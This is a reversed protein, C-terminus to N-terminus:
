SRMTMSGLLAAAVQRPDIRALVAALDDLALWEGDPAADVEHAAYSGNEIQDVALNRIFVVPTGVANAIHRPGSDPALLANCRALFAGYARLGLRGALVRCPIRTRSAIENLVPADSRSGCFVVQIPQERMVADLAALYNDASWVLTTKQRTTLSCAIIPVGSELDMERLARDAEEHDQATLPMVPELPWDPTVGGITAVMSRFYAPMVMPHSAVVIPMTALGSLGKHVFAVRNPVGLMTAMGLDAAYAHHNSCLAADFRRKRLAAWQGRPVRGSEHSIPLVEDVDPNTTLLEAVAADCVYTIHAQPLARRLPGLSSTRYLVDGIHSAGLIMVRRWTPPPTPSGDAITRALVRLAPRILETGYALIRNRRRRLAEPRLGM